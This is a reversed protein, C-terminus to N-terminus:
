PTYSDFTQRLAVANGYFPLLYLYFINYYHNKILLTQEHSKVINIHNQTTKM